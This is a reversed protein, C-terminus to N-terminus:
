RWGHSAKCSAKLLLTNTDYRDLWDDLDRRLRDLGQNVERPWGDFVANLDPLRISQGRLATIVSISQEQTM